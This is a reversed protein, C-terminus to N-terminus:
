YMKSRVREVDKLTYFDKLSKIKMLHINNFLLYHIFTKYSVVMNRDVNIKDSYYKNSM